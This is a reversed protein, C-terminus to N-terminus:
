LRFRELADLACALQTGAIACKWNGFTETAPRWYWVDMRDDYRPLILIGLDTCKEMAAGLIAQRMTLIEPDNDAYAYSGDSARNIVGGFHNDGVSVRLADCAKPHARLLDILFKANM